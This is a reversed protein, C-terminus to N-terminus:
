RARIGGRGGSVRQGRIISAGSGLAACIKVTYIGQGVNPFIFNFSHASATQLILDIVSTFTFTCTGSAGDVLVTRDSISQSITQIRCVAVPRIRL